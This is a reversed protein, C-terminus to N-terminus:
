RAGPSPTHTHSLSPSPSCGHTCHMHKAGERQRGIDAATFSGVYRLHRIYQDMCQLAYAADAQALVCCLPKETSSHVQRRLPSRSPSPHPSCRVCLNFVGVCCGEEMVGTRRDAVVQVLQAFFHEFHPLLLCLRVEGEGEDGQGEEESTILSSRGGGGGRRSSSSSSSRFCPRGESLLLMQTVVEGVCRDLGELLDMREHAAKLRDHRHHHHRQSLAMILVCVCVCMVVVFFCAAMLTCACLPSSLCFCGDAHIM